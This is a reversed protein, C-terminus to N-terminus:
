HWMSAAKNAENTSNIAAAIFSSFFAILVASTVPMYCVKLLRNLYKQYRHPLGQDKHCNGALGALSQELEGFAPKNVLPEHKARAKLTVL